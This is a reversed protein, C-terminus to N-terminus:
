CPNEERPLDCTRGIQSRQSCMTVMRIPDRQALDSWCISKTESRQRGATRSQRSWGMWLMTVWSSAAREPLPDLFPSPRSLRVVLRHCGTRGVRVSATNSSRTHAPFTLLDHPTLPPPALNELYYRSSRRNTISSLLRNALSRLTSNPRLPIHTSISRRWPIRLHHGALGCQM